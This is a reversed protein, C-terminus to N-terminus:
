GGTKGTATAGISIRAPYVRFTPNSTGSVRRRKRSEEGSALEGRRASGGDRAEFLVRTYDFRKKQLSVLLRATPM